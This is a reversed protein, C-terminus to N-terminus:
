SGYEAPAPSIHAVRISMNNSGAKADAGGKM